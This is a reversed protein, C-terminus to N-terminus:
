AVFEEEVKLELGDITPLALNEHIRIAVLGRVRAFEERCAELTTANAYVGRCASIEGYISGDDALMEYHAHRMAADLYKTLM